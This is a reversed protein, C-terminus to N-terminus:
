KLMVGKLGLRLAMKRTPDRRSTVRARRLDLTDVLVKPTAAELATLFGALREEPIVGNLMIGLTIARGQDEIEASRIVEIDLAHASALEQIQTQLRTQAINPGDESPLFLAAQAAGTDPLTAVRAIRSQLEAVTQQSSWVMWLGLVMALTAALAGAAYLGQRTQAVLAPNHFRYM